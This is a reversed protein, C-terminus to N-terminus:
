GLAVQEVFVMAEKSNVNVHYVIYYHTSDELADIGRMHVHIISTKNMNLLMVLIITM